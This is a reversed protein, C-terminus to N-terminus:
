ICPFKAFVYLSLHYFNVYFSVPLQLYLSQCFYRLAAILPDYISLGDYIYVHDWACETAFSDLSFEISSNKRFDSSLIPDTCNESQLEALNSVSLCFEM